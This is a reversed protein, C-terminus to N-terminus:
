KNKLRALVQADELDKKRGTAKKCAILDDIGIVSVEIGEVMAVVRRQYCDWFDFGESLRPLFDLTYGEPKFRFFSSKPFPHLEERFRSTDFGMDDFANLLKQYNLYLPHFWIDFDPNDVANGDRDTTPRYYGHANVAAGGVVLYRVKRSNLIQCLSVLIRIFKQEDQM